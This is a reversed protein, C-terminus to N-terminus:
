KLVNSFVYALVARGNSDSAGTTVNKKPATIKPSYGEAVLTIQANKISRRIIAIEISQFLRKFNRVAM